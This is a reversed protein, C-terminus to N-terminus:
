LTHVHTSTCSHTRVIHQSHQSFTHFHPPINQSCVFNHSPTPYTREEKWVQDRIMLDVSEKSKGESVCAAAAAAIRENNKKIKDATKAVHNLIHLLYADM